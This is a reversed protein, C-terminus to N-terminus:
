LWWSTPLRSCLVGKIDAPPHPAALVVCVQPYITQCSPWVTAKYVDGFSGAGLDGMQTFPLIEEKRFHCHYGSMDKTLQRPLFGWQADTAFALGFMHTVQQAQEVALPLQGDIIGHEIFSNLTHEWRRWVLIGFIIKGENLVYNVASPCRYDVIGCEPIATAIAEKTLLVSLDKQSVFHRHDTSEKRLAAIKARLSDTIPGM